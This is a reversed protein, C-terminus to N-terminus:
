ILQNMELESRNDKNEISSKELSVQEKPVQKSDLETQIIYLDNPNALPYKKALEYLDYKLCGAFFSDVMSNIREKNTENNLVKNVILNLVSPHDVV